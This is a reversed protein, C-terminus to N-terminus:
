MIEHSDILKIKQCVIILISIYIEKQWISELQKINKTQKIM